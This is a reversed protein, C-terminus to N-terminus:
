GARRGQASEVPEADPDTEADTAADTETDDAPRATDQDASPAPPTSVATAAACASLLDRMSPPPVERDASTTM